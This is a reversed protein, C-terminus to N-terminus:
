TVRPMMVWRRDSASSTATRPWSIPWTVPRWEALWILLCCSAM